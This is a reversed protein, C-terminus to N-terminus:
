VCLSAILRMSMSMDCMNTACWMTVLLAFLMKGSPRRLTAGAPVNIWSAQHLSTGEDVTADAAEARRATDLTLTPITIDCDIAARVVPLQLMDQTLSVFPEDAPHIKHPPSSEAPTVHVHLALAETAGEQPAPPMSLGALSPIEPSPKEDVGNTLDQPQPVAESVDMLVDGFAEFLQAKPADVFSEDDDSGEVSVRM